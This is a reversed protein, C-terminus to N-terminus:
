RSAMLLIGTGSGSGSDSLGMAHSIRHLSGMLHPCKSREWSGESKEWSGKTQGKGHDKM